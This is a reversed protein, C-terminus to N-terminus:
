LSATIRSCSHLLVDSVQFKRNKDGGKKFFHLFYFSKNGFTHLFLQISPERALKGNAIFELSHQKMFGWFESPLTFDHFM